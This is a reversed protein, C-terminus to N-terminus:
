WDEEDEEDEESICMHHQAYKNFSFALYRREGTVKLLARDSYVYRKDNPDKLEHRALYKFHAKAIQSYNARKKGVIVRLEKSLRYKKMLPRSETGSSASSSSLSPSDSSEGEQLPPTAMDGESSSGEEGRHLHLNSFVLILDNLEANEGEEPQGNGQATERGEKTSRGQRKIFKVLDAAGTSDEEFIMKHM